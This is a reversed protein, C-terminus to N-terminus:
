DGGTLILPGKPTKIQARFCPRDARVLPVAVDLVRFLEGLREKDPHGIEFFDFTCGPASTLAPHTADKWDIFKPLYEGFSNARPLILGWRLTEGNPLIRSANLLDSDIGAKRLSEQIRDLDKAKVVYAFIRPKALTPFPEGYTGALNQAPDPAILELYVEGGLSALANRTGLGPHAGGYAAKVGSLSQFTAVLSDLDAGAYMFHDLRNAM